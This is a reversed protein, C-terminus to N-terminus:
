PKLYIENIIKKESEYRELYLTDLTLGATAALEALQENVKNPNPAVVSFANITARGVSRGSPLEWSELGSPLSSYPSEQTAGAWITLSDGESDPMGMYCISFVGGLKGQRVLQFHKDMLTEAEADTPLGHYSQGAFYLTPQTTVELIPSEFGGLKAYYLGGLLLLTFLAIRFIKKANMVTSNFPAHM